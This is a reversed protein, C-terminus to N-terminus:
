NPRKYIYTIYVRGPKYINKNCLSKIEAIKNAIKSHGSM